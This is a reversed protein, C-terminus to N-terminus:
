GIVDEPEHVNEAFDFSMRSLQKSASMVKFM